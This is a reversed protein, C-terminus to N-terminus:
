NPSIRPGSSDLSYTLPSGPAKPAVITLKTYAGSQLGTLTVTAAYNVESGAACNPTCDDATYTGQATATAGGWGSWALTSLSQEGDGCALIFSAPNTVPQEACTYIVVSGGGAAAPAASSARAAPATTPSTGAPATSSSAAASSAPASVPASASPLPAGNLSSSPTSAAGSGSSGSCAAAALQVVVGLCVATSGLAARRRRFGAHPIPEPAPNQGTAHPLFQKRM